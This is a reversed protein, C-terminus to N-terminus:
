ETRAGAFTPVIHPRRHLPDVVKALAPSTLVIRPALMNGMQNLM